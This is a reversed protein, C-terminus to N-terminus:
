QLQHTYLVSSQSGANTLEVERIFSIGVLANALTITPLMVSTPLLRRDANKVSIKGPGCGGVKKNGDQKQYKPPDRFPLREHQRM